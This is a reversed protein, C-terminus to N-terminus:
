GEVLSGEQPYWPMCLGRCCLKLINSSHVQMAPYNISVFLLEWKFAVLSPAEAVSAPLSNWHRVTRPFFSFKYYDSSAPIQHFKLTNRGHGLLKLQYLTTVHQYTRDIKKYQSSWNQDNFWTPHIHSFKSNLMFSGGFFYFPWGSFCLLTFALM